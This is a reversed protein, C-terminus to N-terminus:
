IKRRSEYVPLEEAEVFQNVPWVTIMLALPLLGSIFRKGARVEYQVDEKVIVRNGQLYDMKKSSLSAASIIETKRWFLMIISRSRNQPLIRVGSAQDWIRYGGVGSGSIRRIVRYTTAGPVTNWSLHVGEKINEM